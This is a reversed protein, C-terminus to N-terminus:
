LKPYGRPFLNPIDLFEQSLASFFSPIVKFDWDPELM